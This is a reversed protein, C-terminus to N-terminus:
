QNVILMCSKEMSDPANYGGRSEVNHCASVLFLDLVPSLRSSHLMCVLGTKFHPEVSHARRVCLSVCVTERESESKRASKRACERENEREHERERTRARAGERQRERAREGKCEGERELPTM